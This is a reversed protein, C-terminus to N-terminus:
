RHRSLAGELGDLGRTARVAEVLRSRPVLGRDIAEEVAKELQERSTTGAAADVLTRLPTTVWFGMREEVDAPGIVARHLVAGAPPPKRFGPPVTLHVKDPLLEALEHVVLATEHSVVARPRDARDRSWFSLRILDDHEAPAVDALRYLGHGVREFTGTAVHYDLHPYGYGAAIAQKATFYGGQEQATARLSRAAERASRAM